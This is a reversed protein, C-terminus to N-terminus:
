MVKPFGGGAGVGGHGGQSSHREQGTSKPGLIHCFSCHASQLRLSAEWPAEPVLLYMPLAPRIFLSVCHRKRPWGRSKCRQASGSSSVWLYMFSIVTINNMGSILEHQTAWCYYCCCASVGPKHSVLYCWHSAEPFYNEERILSLAHFYVRSLAM